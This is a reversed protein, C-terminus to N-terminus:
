KDVAFGDINVFFLTCISPFNCVVMNFLSGLPPLCICFQSGLPFADSNNRIQRVLRIDKPTLTVHKAHIAASQGDHMMNVLYAEAAAQLALLAQASWRTPPVAKFNFRYFRGTRSTYLDQM